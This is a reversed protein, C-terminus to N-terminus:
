PRGYRDYGTRKCLPFISRDRKEVENRSHRSAVAVHNTSPAGVLATAVLEVKASTMPTVPHEGAIEVAVGATTDQPVTPTPLLPPKALAFKLARLTDADLPEFEPL